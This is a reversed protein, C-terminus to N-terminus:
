GIGLLTRGQPSIKDPTWPPDWVVNVDAESVGPLDMLKYRADAAISTGM